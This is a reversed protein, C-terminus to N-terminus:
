PVGTVPSESNVLLDGQSQETLRKIASNCYDNNNDIGIAHRQLQTAALLTTGSGMFPDIITDGINTYTQILYRMLAVPKQTPHLGVETNFFQISSPVRLEPLNNTERDTFDRYNSSRTRFAVNYKVRDSGSGTREQMQPNYTWKGKSFILVHEHEKMPERVTNAFNSGRNKGWIWEHRFNLLNYYILFSSFPQSATIVSTQFPSLLDWLHQIDVPKDWKNSTIGYPPDTIVVVDSNLNLSPVIEYSDGCYITAWDNSFNPKTM